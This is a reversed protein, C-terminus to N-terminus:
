EDLVEALAAVVPAVLVADREGAVVKQLSAQTDLGLGGAGAHGVVLIHLPGADVQEGVLSPLQDGGLLAAGDGVLEAALADQAFEVAACTPVPRQLSVLELAVPLVRRPDVEAALVESVVAEGAAGLAVVGGTDDVVTGPPRVVTKDLVVEAPEAEHQGLPLGDAIHQDDVRNLARPTEVVLALRLLRGPEDLYLPSQVADHVGEGLLVVVPVETVLRQERLIRLHTAIGKLHPLHAVLEHDHRRAHCQARGGDVEQQLEHCCPPPHDERALRRLADVGLDAAGERLEYLLGVGAGGLRLLQDQGDLM